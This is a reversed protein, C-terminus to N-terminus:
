HVAWPCRRTESKHCFPVEPRIPWQRAWKREASQVVQWRHVREIAWREKPPPHWVCQKLLSPDQGVAPSAARPTTEKRFPRLHEESLRRTYVAMRWRVFHAGRWDGAGYIWENMRTHGCPTAFMLCPSPLYVWCASNVHVRAAHAELERPQTLGKMRGCKRPVTSHAAWGHRVSLAM